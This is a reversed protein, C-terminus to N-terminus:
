IDDTAELRRDPGWVEFGFTTEHLLSFIAEGYITRLSDVGRETLPANTTYHTILRNEARHRILRGLRAAAQEALKGGRYEKGLDNMVLWRVNEYTSDWPQNRLPDHPSHGAPPRYKDLISPATEFHAALVNKARQQFLRTGAAAVYSKGIGPPGSILVGKGSEIHKALNRMYQMFFGYQEEDVGPAGVPNGDKDKKGILIADAFRAPISPVSVKVLKTSM